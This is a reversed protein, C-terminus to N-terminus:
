QLTRGLSPHAHVESRIIEKLRGEMKELFAGSVRTFRPSGDSMRRHNAAIELATQKVKSRCIHPTTNM